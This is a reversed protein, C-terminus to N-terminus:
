YLTRHEMKLIEGHAVTIVGYSDNALAGPNFLAVGDQVTQLARHTHGFLAVTAGRAAATGSLLALTAKVSYEQGHTYFFIVGDFATLAEAPWPSGVDCNGRVFYMRKDPHAASLAELERIGDGLFVLADADNEKEWVRALAVRDGHVDSLILLKM